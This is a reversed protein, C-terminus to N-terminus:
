RGNVLEDVYAELDANHLGSLGEEYELSYPDDAIIRREPYCGGGLTVAIGPQPQDSSFFRLPEGFGELDVEYVGAHLEPKLGRRELVALIANVGDAPTGREPNVVVSTSPGWEMLPQCFFVGVSLGLEDYRGLAEDLLLTLAEREAEIDEEITAYKGESYGYARHGLDFYFTAVVGVVLVLIVVTTVIWLLSTWSSRPRRKRSVEFVPQTDM